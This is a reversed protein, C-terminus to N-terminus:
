RLFLNNIDKLVPIQQITIQKWWGSPNTSLFWKYFIENGKHMGTSFPCPCQPHVDSREGERKSREAFDQQWNEPVVKHFNHSIYGISEVGDSFSV